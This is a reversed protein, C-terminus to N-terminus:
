VIRPPQRKPPPKAEPDAELGLRKGLFNRLPSPRDPDLSKWVAFVVLVVAAMLHVAAVLGRRGSPVEASLARQLNAYGMGSTNPPAAVIDNQISVLILYDASLATWNLFAFVAYAISLVILEAVQLPRELKWLGAFAALHLVMFMNWLTDIQSAVAMYGSLLDM